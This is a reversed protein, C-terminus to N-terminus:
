KLGEVFKRYEEEGMLNDMEKASAIKLKAIWGKRQPSENVLQPSGELEKNVEIVEGSVPAYVPSSAKMSDIIAMEEFQKVKKGIKPLDISVVDGLHGQAYDTIGMTATNGSLEVWEHEKTFKM